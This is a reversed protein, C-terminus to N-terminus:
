CFGTQVGLVFWREDHGVVAGSDLHASSVRAQHWASQHLRQFLPFRHAALLRQGVDILPTCLPLCRGSPTFSLCDLTEPRSCYSLFVACYIHVDAM